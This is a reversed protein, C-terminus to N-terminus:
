TLCTMGPSIAGQLIATVIEKASYRMPGEGSEDNFLWYGRDNIKITTHPEGGAVEHGTSATPDEAADLVFQLHAHKRLYAKAKIAWPKYAKASGDYRPRSRRDGSNTSSADDVLEDGGRVM